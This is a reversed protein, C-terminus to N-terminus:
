LCVLFPVPMIPSRTRQGSSARRRSGRPCSPPRRRGVGAPPATTMATAGHPMPCRSRPLDPERRGQTEAPLQLPDNTVRVDRKRIVCTVMPKRGARPVHQSLAHRRRVDRRRTFPQLRKDRLHLTVDPSRARGPRPDAGARTSSRAPKTSMATSRTRLQGSRAAGAVQLHGSRAPRTRWPRLRRRLVAGARTDVHGPGGPPDGHQRM